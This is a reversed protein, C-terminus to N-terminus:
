AVIGARARALALREALWDAFLREPAVRVSWPVVALRFPWPRHLLLRTLDKETTLVVSAGTERLMASMREIDATTFAHHDRFRLTAAVEIGQERVDQEFREPRAIGSVVVVRSDRALPTPGDPAEEIPARGERVLAFSEVVGLRNAVATPDITGDSVLVADAHRAAGLPERLPGRPLLHPRDVDAPDVILLDVDRALVMHQFGDDLVHVTAGLHLEALKGALYREPAVVVPVGPLARALMLPEDGARALDARLREGDSVVTVGDDPATRAYGRSLIAPRESADVLLRAVFAALPTKGSGGASLSGISVVPRGLRRVRAPHNRLWARRYRAAAGYIHTALGV